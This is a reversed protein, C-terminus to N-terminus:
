TCCTGVTGAETGLVLTLAQWHLQQYFWLMAYAQTPFLGLTEPSGMEALLM